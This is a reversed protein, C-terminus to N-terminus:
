KYFQFRVNKVYCWFSISLFLSHVALFIFNFRNGACFYRKIIIDETLRNENEGRKRMVQWSSARQINWMKTANCAYTLETSHVIHYLLGFPQHHHTSSLTLWSSNEYKLEVSFFYLVSARLTWKEFVSHLKFIWALNLM